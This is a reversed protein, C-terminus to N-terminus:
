SAPGIAEVEVLRSRGDAARQIFVRVKTTTVEPFTVKRWVLSNGTVSGGPVTVWAAGDWYQVEFSTVGYKTFAIVGTPEAPSTYNDQLSFVNVEDVRRAGAFSVQLWDPFVNGTGDRWGGGHEWNLGRRDGDVVGAPSFDLGPLEQQTTTSSATATAGNSAAAHNIRGAPPQPQTARTGWAELEVLRSRGALANSVVVRVRTTTVSPFTLKRWVNGNNTVSGGPVTAWASGTWYQVDFVTVGYKTFTMAETPEAPSTYNDQLSFVNVEDVATPAAFDVQLWDPYANNTADRWGGGHEWNLGKRDGNIVGSPSFDMGPLEAQTTTSSATAVGGNAALAANIRVAAPPPASVTATTTASASAGRDDTVTLTVTYTGASVYAHAPAAGAGTTGDGFDWRYSNITGDADSSSGGSFQVAQGAQAAYPGGARATPPQNVYVTASASTTAAGRDDTAVAKLSHAGAAVNGWTVAYPSTYDTGVLQTGAYFDVRSVAGDADSASASINVSAPATFTAGAPPGTLAVSPASNPVPTPSPAPTPTPTPAPPACSRLATGVDLRGGTATVGSLSPLYDVSSLIANKLGATDLACRSLVLAAAGSVHPTAMSTGSWYDYGGGMITSFVLVGPAGLHVRNAGYNSFSALADKNDTAAVAVVNPADYSAPYFPSADNDDGARDDGGNGAGAVFLMDSEGARNIQDLLAQEAEGNWGWSANLVRVNAGAGLVRKAQIAFEIADLADSLTGSGTADIFKIDMISATWNVGVGGVGNDGPAGIIGAVHTGHDFEDAPDCTKTIANFGHTGAECRIMQGGINVTFPAPASWMNAALDPHHHDIGTDIVAVVNDRSGTSLDWAYAAGIDAGPTAAGTSAAYGTNQLAWQEGFSPDGPVAAPRIIYNPQAYLVGPRASLERVLTEADKSRSRLLRVGKGGVRKEHEVDAVARASEVDHPLASESFKVLVQGAAVERGKFLETKQRGRGAPSQAGAHTAAFVAFASFAVALV